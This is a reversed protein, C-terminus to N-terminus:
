MRGDLLAEWAGNRSAFEAHFPAIPACAPSRAEARRVPAACRAECVPAPEPWALRWPRPVLRVPQRAPRTDYRGRQAPRCDGVANVSQCTHQCIPLANSM